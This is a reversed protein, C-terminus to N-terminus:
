ENVADWQSMEKLILNVKEQWRRKVDIRVESPIEMELEDPIAQLRDAILRMLMTAEQLVDAKVVLREEQLENRTRRFRVEEFLKQEELDTPSQKQLEGNLRRLKWQAIASLDFSQVKSKPSEVKSKPSQVEVVPMGTERWDKRVTDYAVGFFDAVAQM